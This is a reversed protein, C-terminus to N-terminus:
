KNGIQTAPIREGKGLRFVHISITPFSSLLVCGDVTGASGAAIFLIGSRRTRRTASLM